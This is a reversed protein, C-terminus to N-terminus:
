ETFAITISTGQGDLEVPTNTVSNLIRIYMQSIPTTFANNLDIFVPFPPNYVLNGAELGGKTNSLPCVALIQRRDGSVSDYNFMEGISPMEITLSPPTNTEVLPISANFSGTLSTVSHNLEAFGMIEAVGEQLFLGVKTARVVGLSDTLQSIDTTFFPDSAFQCQICKTNANSLAVCPFYSGSNFDFVTSSVGLNVWGLVADEYQYVLKGAETDSCLVIRVSEDDGVAFGSDTAIGNQIVYYNGTADVKIGFAIDSVQITSAVIDNNVLGMLGDSVNQSNVDRFQCTFIGTGNSFAMKSIAYHSYQDAPSAGASSLFGDNAIETMSTLTTNIMPQIGQRRFELKLKGSDDVEPIRWQFNTDNNDAGGTIATQVESLAQLLARRFGTQTYSGTAIEVNLVPETDKRKYTFINNNSTVVIQRTDMSFSANILAVKSMPKLNFPERFDVSFMGTDQDDRSIIKILKM